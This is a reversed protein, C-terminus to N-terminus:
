DKMNKYIYFIDKMLNTKIKSKLLNTHHIVLIFQSIFFRLHLLEQKISSPLKCVAFSIAICGL